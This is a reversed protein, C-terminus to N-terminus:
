AQSTQDSVKQVRVPTGRVHEVRELRAVDARLQANRLPHTGIPWGSSFAFAAAIAVITPGAALWWGRPWRGAFGVLLVISLMVAAVEAGLTQWQAALWAFPAFPGLGFHHDWWLSALGFPLQVFWLTVLVVLGAVISAGIRGLGMARISPPLRWALVALAGLTALTGLLWLLQSGRGYRTARRLESESFLRHEDLGALHLSPVSTRALLWAAVCWVGVAAVLLVARSIHSRRAMRTATTESMWPFRCARSATSASM